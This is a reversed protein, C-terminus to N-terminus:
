KRRYFIQDMNHMSNYECRFNMCTFECTFIPKGCPTKLEEENVEQREYKEKNTKPM